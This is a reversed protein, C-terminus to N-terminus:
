QGNLAKSVTAVSVGCYQAIDKMSVVTGAEKITKTILAYRIQFFFALLIKLFSDSAKKHLSDSFHSNKIARAALLLWNSVLCPM